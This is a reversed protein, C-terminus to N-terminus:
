IVGQKKLAEILDIMDNISRVIYYQYGLSNVKNQFLIQSDSQVGTETKVEVFITVGNNLLLVLDSTGSRLGMAKFRAMQAAANKGAAENVVAFFFIKQIQLYQVIQTQIISEEHKM